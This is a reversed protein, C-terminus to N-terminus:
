PAAVLSGVSSCAWRRSVLLLKPASIPFFAYRLQQTSDFFSTLWWRHEQILRGLFGQVKLICISLFLSDYRLFVSPKRFTSPLSWFVQPAVRRDDQIFCVQLWFRFFLFCRSRILFSVLLWRRVRILRGLATKLKLFFISKLRSDYWFCAVELSSRVSPNRYPFNWFCWPDTSRSKSSPTKSDSSRLIFLSAVMASRSHTKRFLRTDQAHLDDGVLAQWLSWVFGFGVSTKLTLSSLFLFLCWRINCLWEFNKFESCGELVSGELICSLM